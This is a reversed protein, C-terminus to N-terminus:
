TYETELLLSITGLGPSLRIRVPSSPKSIISSVILYQIYLQNNTSDMSIVRLSMVRIHGKQDTRVKLEEQAYNEIRKKFYGRM